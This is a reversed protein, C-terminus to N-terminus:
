MSASTTMHPLARPRGQVELPRARARRVRMEITSAQSRSDGCGRTAALSMAIHEAPIGRLYLALGVVVEFAYLSLPIALEFGVILRRIAHPKLRRVDDRHSTATSPV